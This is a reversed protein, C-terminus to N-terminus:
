VPAIDALRDRIAADTEQTLDKDVEAIVAAAAAPSLHKRLDGMFQPPAILILREFDHKQAHDSLRKAVETAADRKDRRVPDEGPEMAHRTGDASEFARGPRDAFDKDHDRHHDEAVLREIPTGPGTSQLIRLHGADAVCIWTTKRNPM